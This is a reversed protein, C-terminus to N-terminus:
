QKARVSPDARGTHIAADEVADGYEEESMGPSSLKGLHGWFQDSGVVKDPHCNHKDVRDMLAKFAHEM